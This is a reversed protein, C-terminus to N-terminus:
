GPATTFSSTSASRRERMRLARTLTCISKKTNSRACSANSSSTTAGAARATWALAIGHEERILKAFDGDTFQAGQDTNFIEPKGHKASEQVTEICFDTTLTNSLCWALVRRTAL